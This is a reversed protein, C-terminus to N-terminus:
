DRPSPSTYLLCTDPDVEDLALNVVALAREGDGANRLVSGLTRLVELRGLGVVSEADPVQIWLDLALEGFRAASAFAFRSKADFMAAVAAALARHDDQALQWHYALAASDATDSGDGNEELAEAYARHLRAREGPLLDDHVAERLLAHRFRYDDDAVVLIGSLTAERIAEDLRAEALGALRTVLPHTLPREAGSVVQVQRKYM